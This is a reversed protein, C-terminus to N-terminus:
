LRGNYIHQHHLYSTSLSPISQPSTSNLVSIFYHPLSTRAGRATTSDALRASFFALDSLVERGATSSHQGQLHLCYSQLCSSSPLYIPLKASSEMRTVTPSQGSHLYKNTKQKFKCNIDQTPTQLICNKSVPVGHIPPDILITVGCAGGRGEGASHAM